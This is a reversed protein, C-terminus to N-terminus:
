RTAILMLPRYTLPLGHLTGFRAAYDDEFCQLQAPTRIAAASAGNVGTGRLHRLLAAANPFFLTHEWTEAHLVELGAAHTIDCLRGLSPCSLVSASFAKLEKLNGEAFASVALIGGHRLVAHAKDFFTPLDRFWQLVSASAVLDLRGPYPVQEADGPLPTCELGPPLWDLAAPSLDNFWWQAQPYRAVLLRTLFGTGIGIELARRVELDPATQALADALRRAADRQVVATQEYREYHRSFAARIRQKDEDMKRISRWKM